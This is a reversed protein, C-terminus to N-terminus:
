FPLDDDGAAVAEGNSAPAPAPQAQSENTKASGLLNLNMVRCVLSHGTKGDKTEYTRIEPIGEVFVQTGKKLYPAVNTNDTWRSCDVWTTKEKKNGEKDKYSETHAVSFNIVSTGGVQNVIADKGLHGIVQLKIM